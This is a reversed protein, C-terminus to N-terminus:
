CIPRRASREQFFWFSFTLLALYIWLAVPSVSIPSTGEPTVSAIWLLTVKAIKWIWDTIPLLPHFLFGLISIPFLVSGLVPALLWNCFISIPTPVSLPLLAPLILIYARAQTFLVQFWSRDKNELATLALTALWSLLLAQLDFLTRCFILTAFGSATIIQLRTWQLNLSRNFTKLFIAILARTVPARLQNILAFLILLFGVFVQGWRSPESVPILSGGVFKKRMLILSVTSEFITLHFGSVILLHLLGMQGLATKFNQGVGLRNGCIIASYLGTNETTPALHVCTQHFPLTLGALLDPMVSHLMLAFVTFLGVFVLM